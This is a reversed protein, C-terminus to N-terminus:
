TELSKQSSTHAASKGQATQHIELQIEPELITQIKALDNQSDNQGAAPNFILYASRTM